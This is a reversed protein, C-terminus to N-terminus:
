RAGAPSLLPGSSRPLRILISSQYEAEDRMERAARRRDPWGPGWMLLKHEEKYSGRRM